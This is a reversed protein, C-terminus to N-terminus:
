RDGSNGPRLLLNVAVLSGPYSVSLHDSKAAMVIGATVAEKVGM